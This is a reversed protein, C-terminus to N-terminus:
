PPCVGASSRCSGNPCKATGVPCVGGDVVHTGGDALCLMPCVSGASVCQGDCCVHQTADPCVTGADPRACIAGPPLCGCPTIHDVPSPCPNGADVVCILPASTSSPQCQCPVTSPQTADCGCSAGPPLCGCPTPITTPDCIPCMLPCAQTDPICVGHGGCGCLYTGPGCCVPTITPDVQAPCALPCAKGAPLCVGSGGCGCFSEGAPCCSGGTGGDRGGLGGDFGGTSPGGDRGGGGGGTGGDFICVPCALPCAHDAPVCTGNGCCGCFTEGSPCVGGTPPGWVPGCNFLHSATFAVTGAAVDIQLDGSSVHLTTGDSDLGQIALGDVGQGSALKFPLVITVPHSFSVDTPGLEVAPGAASAGSALTLPTAEAITIKTDTALAGPPIQISTGALTSDEDATVTLTDGNVASVTKTLAYKSGVSQNTNCAAICCLAVIGLAREVHRM